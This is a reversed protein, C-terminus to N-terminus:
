RRWPQRRRSLWREVAVTGLFVLVLYLPLMM